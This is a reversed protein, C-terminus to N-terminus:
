GSGRGFKSVGSWCRVYGVWVCGLARRADRGTWGGRHLAEVHAPVIRRISRIGWSEVVRRV